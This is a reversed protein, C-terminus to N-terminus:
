WKSKEGYNLSVCIVVRVTDQANTHANVVPKKLEFDVEM